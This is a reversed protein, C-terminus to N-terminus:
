RRLEIPKDYSILLMHVKLYGLSIIHQTDYRINHRSYKINRFMHLVNARGKVQIPQVLEMNQPNNEITLAQIHRIRHSSSM